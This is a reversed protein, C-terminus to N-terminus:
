YVVMRLCVVDDDDHSSGGGGNGGNSYFRMGGNGRGTYEDNPDIPRIPGVQKGYYVVYAVLLCFMGDIVLLLSLFAASRRGPVLRYADEPTVQSMRDKRLECWEIEHLTLVRAALTIPTAIEFYSTCGVWDVDMSNALYLTYICLLAYMVFALAHTLTPTPPKSRWDRTPGIFLIVEGSSQCILALLHLVSNFLLLLALLNGIIAAGPGFVHEFAAPMGSILLLAWGCVHTVIACMCLIAAAAPGRAEPLPHLNGIITTESFSCLSALFLLISDWLLLLAM